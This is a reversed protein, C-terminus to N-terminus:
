LWSFDILKSHVEPQDEEIHTQATPLCMREPDLTSQSTREIGPAFIRSATLTQGNHRITFRYDRIKKSKLLKFQKEHHDQCAALGIVVPILHASIVTEQGAEATFTDGKHEGTYRGETLDHSFRYRRKSFAAKQQMRHEHVTLQQDRWSFTTSERREFGLVSAMGRTGELVDTLQWQGDATQQLRTVQQGTVKGDRSIEYVAKFPKLEQAQVQALLQASFLLILCVAKM